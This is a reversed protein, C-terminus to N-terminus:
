LRARNVSGEPTLHLTRGVAATAELEALDDPDDLRAYTRAPGDAGAEGPLDVIALGSTAAGDRGHRVTYAAITADGTWTDVIPRRDPEGADSGSDSGSGAGPRWPTAPPSTGLVAAAHKTMHMGVGSVLGLTGPDERLVGVMTTLAHSGYNSAPGGCYPLGGTVTLPRGPALPDLGLADCAFTVSSAFCSYLDLHAVDDIGVDAQGLVSRFVRAMAPSRSLDPHEAVYVPDLGQATGHLYVRREPPVGLRDAAAHSAVVVAAAMDVDMIAVELKTYPYGVLRNDPTPTSLEDATRARPFWAHPNTAAVESLSAMLTGISRAHDAPAVGLRARRAIDRVAFTLWAAFVEHAVEAPHFPAEFPFPPKEPHRHSWDPREGAKKLRRVTDLAEAGAIVAVESRGGVIEAAAAAVFQLPVTGGIGSYTGPLPGIGLLDALRGRPDDYPWSMCHVVDIRDVAGLVVGGDAGTDAAAARVVEAQMVLPEPAQDLGDLHWTRQAVGILCPSRPDM